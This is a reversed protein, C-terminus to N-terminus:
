KKPVKDVKSIEMVNTCVSVMVETPLKKLLKDLELDKFVRKGEDDVVGRIVTMAAMKMENTQESIDSMDLASLEKITLKGLMEVEIEKTKLYDTSWFDKIDM